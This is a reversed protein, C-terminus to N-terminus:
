KNGAHADIHRQRGGASLLVVSKQENGASKGGAWSKLLCVNCLHAQLVLYAGVAQMQLPWGTDHTPQGLFALAAEGINM